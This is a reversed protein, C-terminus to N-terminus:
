SLLNQLSIVVEFASKIKDTDTTVSKSFLIKQGLHLRIKNNSNFIMKLLAEPNAFKNGQFSVLIGEKAIELKEIMIKKCLHKLFSIMILNNVEIPLEKFRDIMTIKLQDLQEKSSIAAIKKYFSMRLALDPMYSEPIALPIALKIQTTPEFDLDSEIKETIQDINKIEPDNKLSEIAEVLLQQYLEVGTEKIHGSQEESLLNGSGRIDMDYSAVSFGVGLNDLNEMVELKRKNDSSIKKRNDLMFYAYGRIKSRGVRGRLQYLQALGFMEAKYIIITNASAIDIGSEIINTSLLLDIKDDYFDNMIKDLESPQMQGHAHTIRIEPVLKKLKLEMEEIDKIRPVVFFVKGSRQYERMIAERAIITDYPMIFNKVALRDVPPTAIISLDKVGTLSMQLTRPIPTASLSLIHVENKLEKLREKQGVGFHQEEDIILLGLNKFTINKQLLAHTGIVINVNGNAIDDKVKKAEKTSVMRSLQAIKLNTAAFRKTFNHYHQRSLLTTPAIIAVQVPNKESTAAIFAARMAVETKGFGVDGCILRDMPSGRKLDEEIDSIANLQDDTENYEFHAKFEEYFHHNAALITAPKVKRAAAIKILAAAAIKIRKRVKSQRNKWSNGGLRDLPILPNDSGYRTILNIDEVPVFLNDGGDYIIKLFDSKIGGATITHIGDFRGIGHNRHVVLEQSNIALSEELLRQSNKVTTKQRYIKEGFLSQEGVFILDSTYFGFNIPMICVAIKDKKVETIKFFDDIKQCNIHYDAMLGILREEFGQSLCCFIIKYNIASLKEDQTISLLFEKMIEIPDRKNAKAALVFDPIPKIELDIIRKDSTNDISQNHFSIATQNSSKSIIENFESANFYLYQPELPHYNSSSKNIRLDDKRAQFYEDVIQQRQKAFESIKGNALIVPQDFYDFLSVLQEQYFLPLYHEMGPYNRSESIANYLQDEQVSGFIQRYQERFNAITQQNLIVESAPFIAIEKITEQSLQSQVDFAKISELNSGFFDLRLGIIDSAMTTVIDVVGGRVAFEGVGNASIQRHYGNFVLFKSIDDITVKSGAKALFASNKVIKKSVIKQMIADISTVVLLQKYQEKNSIKYLSRIRDNMLLQKPSIRDYPLCDWPYFSIIELKNDSPYHSFFFNLQRVTKSIELDNEVILILDRLNGNKNVFNGAILSTVFSIADNSINIIECSEKINRIKNKYDM